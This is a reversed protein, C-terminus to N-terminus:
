VQLCNDYNKKDVFSHTSQTRKGSEKEASSIKPDRLIRLKKPSLTAASKLTPDEAIQGKFFDVMKPDEAPIM